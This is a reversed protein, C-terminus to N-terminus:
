AGGGRTSGGLPPEPEGPEGDAGGRSSRRLRSVARRISGRRERPRSSLRPAPLQRAYRERVDPPMQSVFRDALTVRLGMSVAKDADQRVRAEIAADAQAVSAADHVDVQCVAPTWQRRMAAIAEPDGVYSMLPTVRDGETEAPDAFEITSSWEGVEGPWAISPDYTAVTSM